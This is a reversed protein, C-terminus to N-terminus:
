YIAVSANTSTSEPELWKKLHLHGNAKAYHWATKGANDQGHLPAKVERTLWRVMDERGQHAAWHLVSWGGAWRVADWGHTAVAELAAAYPPPVNLFKGATVRTPTGPRKASGVPTSGRKIPTAAPRVGTSIPTEIRDEDAFRKRLLEEVARRGNAVAIDVPSRGVKDRVLADAGHDLCFSCIELNGHEAAWHLLSWGASWKVSRFGHTAISEISNRYVPPVQAQLKKIGQLASQAEDAQRAKLIRDQHRQLAAANRSPTVPATIPRPAAARPVPSESLLHDSQYHPKHTEPLALTNSKPDSQVDLSMESPDTTSSSPPAISIAPEVPQQGAKGLAVKLRARAAEADAVLKQVLVWHQQARGGLVDPRPSPHRQFFDHPNIVQPLSPLKNLPPASLFLTRPPAPHPASLSGFLPLTPPSPTPKRSSINNQNFSNEFFLSSPEAPELTPLSSSDSSVSRASYPQPNYPPRNRTPPNPIWISGM